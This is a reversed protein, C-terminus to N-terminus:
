RGVPRLIAVDMVAPNESDQLEGRDWRAAFEDGSMKMFYQAAADFAAYAEDKTLLDDGQPTTTSM